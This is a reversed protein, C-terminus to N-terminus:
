LPLISISLRSRSAMGPGDHATIMARKYNESGKLNAIQVPESIGFRLTLALFLSNMMMKLIDIIKQRASLRLRGVLMNEVTPM